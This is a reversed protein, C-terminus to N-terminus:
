SRRGQRFRDALIMAATVCSAFLAAELGATVAMSIPGFGTEGFLSGISDLRLQSDPFAQALSALSGGMLRGGLISILAGVAGGAVVGFAVGLRLQMRVAISAAIGVVSGVLVGELPGAIDRPAHGVLLNFADLGLLKVIGGVILGGLAAGSITWQAPRDAGLGAVAIGFAVGAAGLLALVATILVIVLVGSVAGTGPTGAAAFGYLLGGIVGAAGGGLSGAFGLMSTRRSDGALPAAVPEDSRVPAIFRYGHKPVTEIFRPVSADDGLQRRLTRICQTLAEDTVPIGRWVEDMFRDKSVLRGSERVLLALADFYRGSVDVPEDARLLRRDGVDLCYADFRYQGAPMNKLLAESTRMGSVTPGHLNLGCDKASALLTAM